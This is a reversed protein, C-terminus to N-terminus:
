HFNLLFDIFSVLTHLLSVMTQASVYCVSACSPCIYSGQYRHDGVTLDVVIQPLDFFQSTGYYQYGCNSYHNDIPIALHKLTCLCSGTEFSVTM